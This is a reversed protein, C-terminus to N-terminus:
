RKRGGSHPMVCHPVMQPAPSNGFTGAGNANIYGRSLDSDGRECMRATSAPARADSPLPLGLLRYLEDPEQETM